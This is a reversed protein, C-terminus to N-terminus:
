HLRAPQAIEAMTPIAAIRDEIAEAAAGLEEILCDACTYEPLWDVGAHILAHCAEVETLGRKVLEEFARDLVAEAIAQHAESYAEAM